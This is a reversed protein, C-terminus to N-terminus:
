TLSNGTEHRSISLPIPSRQNRNEILRLLGTLYSFFKNFPKVVRTIQTNIFNYWCKIKVVRLQQNKLWLEYGLIKIM